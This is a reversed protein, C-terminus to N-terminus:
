EALQEILRCQWQQWGFGLGVMTEFTEYDAGQRVARFKADNRQQRLSDEQAVLKNM